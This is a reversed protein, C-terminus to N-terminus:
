AHFLMNGPIQGRRLCETAYLEAYTSRIYDRPSFGLASAIRDISGPAGEIELFVGVPTEDLDLHLARLHFTTRFKEYRFGPRFGLSRLGSWWSRVSRVVLERELKEKYRSGASATAPSKFTVVTRRLGGPILTTPAPTEVRIRLLRGRRRLEEGPTDFLTNRERVRGRCNIGLASIKQIMVALHTVGLKIETERVTPRRRLM